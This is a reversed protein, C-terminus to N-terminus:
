GISLFLGLSKRLFRAKSQENIEGVFEVGEKGLLPEIEARFYAEDVRDGYGCNEVTVRLAQLRSPAIWTKRASAVSSRSTAAAPIPNTLIDGPLGHLGHGSIPPSDARAPRGLVLPMNPFGAYFRRLDFLDGHLTTLTAHAVQCHSNFLDISICCM